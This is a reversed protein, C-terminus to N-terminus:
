NTRMKERGYKEKTCFGYNMDDYTISNSLLKWEYKSLASIKM